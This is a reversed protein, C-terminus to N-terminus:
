SLPKTLLGCSVDSQVAPSFCLVNCQLVRYQRDSSCCTLLLTTNPFLLSLLQCCGHAMCVFTCVSEKVGKNVGEDVGKNVGKNVGESM